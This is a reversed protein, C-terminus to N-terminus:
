SATEVDKLGHRHALVACRNSLLKHRQRAVTCSEFGRHDVSSPQKQQDKIMKRYSSAIEIGGSKAEALDSENFWIDAELSPPAKQFPIVKVFEYFKVSKMAKNNNGM